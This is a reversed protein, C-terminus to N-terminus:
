GVTSAAILAASYRPLKLVLRGGTSRAQPLRHAWGWTGNASVTTGGLTVGSSALLSPASLRVVWGNRLRRGAVRIAVKTAHTGRNVLLLRFRGSQTRVAAASVFRDGTVTAALPSSGVLNHTLLLSYWLPRAEFQLSGHGAACIPSYGAYGDCARLTTHFNVGSEGAWIAQPIYISGWLASEFSDSLPAKGGCSVSNTEDVRAALGELHASSVFNSLAHAENALTSPALLASGPPQGHCGDVAYYHNTILSPDLAQRYTAEWSPDRSSSDPGVFSIQPAAALIASRYAQLEFGYGPPGWGTPRLQKVVYDDPENGIAVGLLAPGLRQEAAAAEAAAAVPDYHALNLTLIIKWGSANVLTALGDLMAPDIVVRAWAPKIIGDPSWSAADDATNGGIRIVGTGLSRLLAVLNGTRSAASLAPLNSAEFSLGLFTSPVAPGDSRDFVDV